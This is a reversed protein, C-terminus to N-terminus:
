SNDGPGSAGPRRFEFRPQLGSGWSQVVATM